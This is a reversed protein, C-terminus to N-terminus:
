ENIFHVTGLLEGNSIIRLRRPIEDFGKSTNIGCYYLGQDTLSVNLITMAIKAGNTLVQKSFKFKRSANVDSGNYKWYTSATKEKCEKQVCICELTTNRGEVAVTGQKDLYDNKIM